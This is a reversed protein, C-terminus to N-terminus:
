EKIAAKKQSRKKMSLAYLAAVIVALVSLGILTFTMASWGFSEIITGSFTGAILGGINQGLSMIGMAVGILAPHPATDPANNFMIAPIFQLILGGLVSFVMIMNAGYVFSFSFIIGSCIMSVLYFIPKNQPKIKKLIFGAVFGGVILLFTLVSTYLNASAPDIMLVTKLYTPMFTTLAIFGCNYLMFSAALLWSPLSKLGEVFPHKDKKSEADQAPTAPHVFIFFLIALIAIAIVIFWWVNAWSNPDNFDVLVNTLVLVLFGGTGVYTSWIGMPLGRKDPPFYSAILSPAAPAFIGFGAGEIIRSVVLMEQTPSLAGMVNGIIALAFALLILKRAGYKAIVGGIPLALFVSIVSIASVLSGISSPGIGFAPMLLAATGAIKKITMGFFFGSFIIILACLWARGTSTKNQDNM